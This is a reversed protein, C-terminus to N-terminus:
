TAPGDLHPPTAHSWGTPTSLTQATRGWRTQSVSQLRVGWPTRAALAMPLLCLLAVPPPRALTLFATTAKLARAGPGRAQRKRSPYAHECSHEPVIKLMGTPHSAECPIGNVPFCM